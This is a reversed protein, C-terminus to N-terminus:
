QMPQDSVLFVHNRDSVFALYEQEQFDDCNLETDTKAIPLVGEITPSLLEM